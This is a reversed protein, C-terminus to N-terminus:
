WNTIIQIVSSEIEYILGNGKTHSMKKDLLKEESIFRNGESDLLTKYQTISSM